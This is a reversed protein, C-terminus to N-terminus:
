GGLVVAPLPAYCEGGAATSIGAGAIVVIKRRKRLVKLLLGLQSSQDAASSSLQLDLHVTTRPKAEVSKRKKAPPLDDSERPRKQSGNQSSPINENNEQTSQPSPYDLPPPSVSRVSSLESSLDSLGSDSDMISLNSNTPRNSRDPSVRQPCSPSLSQCSLLLVLSPSTWPTFFSRSTHACHIPVIIFSRHLSYHLHAQPNEAWIAGSPGNKAAFHGEGM